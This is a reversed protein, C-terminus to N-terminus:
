GRVQSHWQPIDGLGVAGRPGARGGAGCVSCACSRGGPRSAERWTGVKPVDTVRFFPKLMEEQASGAWHSGQGSALFPFPEKMTPRAQSSPLFNGVM